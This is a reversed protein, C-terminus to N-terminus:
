RSCLLSNEEKGEIQIRPLSRFPSHSYRVRIVSVIGRIQPCLPFNMNRYILVRIDRQAEKIVLLMTQRICRKEVYYCANLLTRKRFRKQKEKLPGLILFHTGALVSVVTERWCTRKYDTEYSQQGPLFLYIIPNVYASLSVSSFAGSELSPAQGPSRGTHSLTVGCGTLSRSCPYTLSTWCWKTSRTRGRCMAVQCSHM